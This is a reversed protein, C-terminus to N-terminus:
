AIKKIHDLIMIFSINRQLTMAFRSIKFSTYKNCHGPASYAKILTNEKCSQLSLLYFQEILAYKYMQSM